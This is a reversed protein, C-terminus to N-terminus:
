QEDIRNVLATPGQGILVPRFMPLGAAQASPTPSGQSWAVDVIALSAVLFFVLERMALYALPACRKKLRSDRSSELSWRWSDPPRLKTCLKIVGSTISSRM